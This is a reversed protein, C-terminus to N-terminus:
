RRCAAPILRWIGRSPWRTYGHYTWMARNDLWIRFNGDLLRYGNPRRSVTNSRVISVHLQKLCDSSRFLQNRIIKRLDIRIIMLSYCNIKFDITSSMKRHWFFRYQIWHMNLKTYRYWAMEKIWFDPCPICFLKLVINCAKAEKMALRLSKLLM